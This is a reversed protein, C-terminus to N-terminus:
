YPPALPSRGRASGWCMPIVLPPLKLHYLPPFKLHYKVGNQDAGGGIGTLIGVIQEESFRSGKM